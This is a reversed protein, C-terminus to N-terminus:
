AEDRSVFTSHMVIARAAGRRAAARAAGPAVAGTISIARARARRGRAVGRGRARTTSAHLRVGRRRRRRGVGRLREVLADLAIAEAHAQERSESPALAASQPLVLVPDRPVNV